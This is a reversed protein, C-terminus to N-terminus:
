LVEKDEDVFMTILKDKTIKQLLEKSLKKKPIAVNFQLNRKNVRVKLELEKLNKFKM